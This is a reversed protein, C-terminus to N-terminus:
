RVQEPVEMVIAVDEVREGDGVTVPDHSWATMARPGAAASQELLAQIWWTGAPVELTFPGPGDPLVATAAADQDAMREPYAAVSLAGGALEDCTVTGSIRASPM